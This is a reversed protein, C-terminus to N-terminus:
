LRVNQPKVLIYSEDFDSSILEKDKKNGCVWFMKDKLAKTFLSNVSKALECMDPKGNKVSKLFFFRNTVAEYLIAEKLDSTQVFACNMKEYIPEKITLNFYEIKSSTKKVEKAMKKLFSTIAITSDSVSLKKM